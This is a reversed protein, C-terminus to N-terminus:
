PPHSFLNSLLPFFFRSFLSSIGNVVVDKKLGVLECKTRPRPCLSLSFVLCPVVFRLLQTRPPPFTVRAIKNEFSLGKKFVGHPQEPPCFRLPQHFPFPFYTAMLLITQDKPSYSICFLLFNRLVHRTNLVPEFVMRSVFRKCFSFSSILPSQFSYFSSPFVSVAVLNLWAVKTFIVPKLLRNEV